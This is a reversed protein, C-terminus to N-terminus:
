RSRPIPTTTTSLLIQHALIKKSIMRQIQMELPTGEIQDILNTLTTLTKNEENIALQIANSYPIKTNIEKQAPAFTLNFQASLIQIYKSRRSECGNALAILSQKTENSPANQAIRTYFIHANHEDQALRQLTNSIETTSSSSQPTSPKLAHMTGEDLPEYMVGDPLTKNIRRFQEATNEPAHPLSPSSQPPQKQATTKLLRMTDEDLPEYMVGDPLTKNIRRFQEAAVEPTSAQPINAQLPKPQPQPMPTPPQQHQLRQSPMQSTPQQRHAPQQPLPRALQQPLRQQPLPHPSQQPHLHPQPQPKTPLQPQVLQQSLPNPPRQYPNEVPQAPTPQIAKRNQSESLLPYFHLSDNEEEINQLKNNKHEYIQKRQQSFVSNPPRQFTLPM